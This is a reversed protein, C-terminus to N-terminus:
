WSLTTDNKRLEDNTAVHPGEDVNEEAGVLKDDEPEFLYPQISLKHREGDEGTQEGTSSLEGDTNEAFYDSDADSGSFSAM